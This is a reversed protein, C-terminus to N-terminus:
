WDLGLVASVAWAAAAVAAASAALLLWMGTVAGATQRVRGIGALTLKERLAPNERRFLGAAPIGCLLLGFVAAAAGYHCVASVEGFASVQRNRFYVTRDLGYALYRENLWQEAAPITEPTGLLICYRDAAYIGAQASGLTEAGARTLEQFIREELGPQGDFLITVPENSGDMISGVFNEPVAMLCDLDGSETRAIGEDEGVYVFDCITEVSELSGLMSVAQRAAGGNEPLIVGVQLRTIERSGSLVQSAFLAAAGLLGALAAAGLASWPLFRVARKLELKLYVWFTGM